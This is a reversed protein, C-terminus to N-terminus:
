KELLESFADTIKQVKDMKADFDVKSFDDVQKLKEDWKKALSSLTSDIKKIMDANKKESDAVSLDFNTRNTATQAHINALEASIFGKMESYFDDRKSDEQEKEVLMSGILDYRAKGAKVKEFVETDKTFIETDDKFSICYEEDDETFVKELNSYYYTTGGGDFSVLDLLEESTLKGLEKQTYFMKM